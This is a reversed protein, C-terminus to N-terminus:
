ILKIGVFRSATLRKESFRIPAQVLSVRATLLKELRLPRDYPALSSARTSYPSALLSASRRCQRGRAVETTDGTSAPIRDPGAATRDCPRAPVVAIFDASSM